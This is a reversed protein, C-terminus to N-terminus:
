RAIRPPSATLTHQAATPMTPGSAVSAPAVRTTVSETQPARPQDHYPSLVCGRPHVGAPRATCYITHTPGPPERAGNAYRCSSQAAASAFLTALALCRMRSRATVPAMHACCPTTPLRRSAARQRRISTAQSHVSNRLKMQLNGWNLSEIEGRRGHSSSESSSSQRPPRRSRAM